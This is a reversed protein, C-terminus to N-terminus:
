VSAALPPVPERVQDIEAPAGGALRLRFAAVPTMEPVGFVAPVAFKVTITVSEAEGAPVAVFAREITTVAGTMANATVVVDSGPAVITPPPRRDITLGKGGATARKGIDPRNRGTSERCTEVQIRPDNGPIRRGSCHARIEGHHNGIRSERCSGGCLGERYGNSKVAQRVIVSDAKTAM